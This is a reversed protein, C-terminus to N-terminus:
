FDLEIFCRLFVRVPQTSYSDTTGFLRIQSVYDGLAHLKYTRLNLQKSRRDATKQTGQLHQAPTRGGSNERAQRRRRSEAERRLEKTSFAPCIDEVFKRLLVGLHKTVKDLADLTEDTHIRLKALGHWNGLVFLLTM